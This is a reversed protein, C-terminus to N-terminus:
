ASGGDGIDAPRQGRREAAGAWLRVCPCRAEAAGGDRGPHDGPEAGDRLRSMLTAWEDEAARDLFARCAGLVYQNLSLGAAAAAARTRGLLVLDPLLELAVLEDSTRALEKLTQGLMM